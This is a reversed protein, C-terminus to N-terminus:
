FTSNGQKDHHLDSIIKWIHMLTSASKTETHDTKLLVFIIEYINNRLAQVDILDLNIRTNSKKISNVKIGM